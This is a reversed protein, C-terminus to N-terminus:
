LYYYKLEPSIKEKMMCVSKSALDTNDKLNCYETMKEVFTERKIM